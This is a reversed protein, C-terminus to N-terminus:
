GAEGLEFGHWVGARLPPRSERHARGISAGASSIPAPPEMGAGAAVSGKVKFIYVGGSGEGLTQKRWTGKGGHKGM